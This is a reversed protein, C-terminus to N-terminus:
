NLTSVFQSGGIVNTAAPTLDYAVKGAPLGDKMWIPRVLAFVYAGYIGWFHQDGGTNTQPSEVEVVAVLLRENPSLEEPTPVEPQLGLRRTAFFVIKQGFPASASVVECPTRQGGTLDPAAVPVQLLGANYIYRIRQVFFNYPAQIHQETFLNRAVEIDPVSSFEFPM